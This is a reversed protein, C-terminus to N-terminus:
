ARTTRPLSRRPARRRFYEVIAIALAGGEDPDTGTGVEDLLILAPPRVSQATEAINRMHATFTSLNAAISQHDGIDAFM